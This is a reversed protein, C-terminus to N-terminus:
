QNKFSSRTRGGGCPVKLRDLAAEAHPFHGDWWDSIEGSWSTNTAISMAM